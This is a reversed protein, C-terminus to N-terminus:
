PIHRKHAQPFRLIVAFVQPPLSEFLQMENSVYISFVNLKM